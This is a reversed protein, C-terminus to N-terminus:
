KLSIPLIEKAPHLDPLSLLRHTYVRQRYDLLFSAPVLGAECLLPHIPTSSYMETISRVQRNIM